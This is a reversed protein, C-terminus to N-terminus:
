LHGYFVVKFAIDCWSRCESSTGPDTISFLSTDLLLTRTFTVLHWQFIVFNLFSTSLHVSVGSLALIPPRILPLSCFLRSFSCILLSSVDHPSSVTCEVLNPCLIRPSFATFATISEYSVVRVFDNYPAFSKAVARFRLSRTQSLSLFSSHSGLVVCLSVFSPSVSRSSMMRKWVSIRKAAYQRAEWHVLSNFNSLIPGVWELEDM